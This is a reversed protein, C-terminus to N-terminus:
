GIGSLIDVERAASAVIGAAAAALSEQKNNPSSANERDGHGMSDCSDWIGDIDEDEMDGLEARIQACRKLKDNNLGNKAMNYARTYMEFANKMAPYSELKGALQDAPTSRLEALQQEVEDESIEQGSNSKFYELISPTKVKNMMEVMFSERSGDSQLYIASYDTLIERTAVALQKKQFQEFSVTLPPNANQFDEQLNSVTELAKEVHQPQPIRQEKAMEALKLVEQAFALMEDHQKQEAENEPRAQLLNEVATHASEHTIMHRLNMKSGNPLRFSPDLIEKSITIGGNTDCHMEAAYGFRQKSGASIKERPAVTITHAMGILTEASLHGRLLPEILLKKIAKAEAPSVEVGDGVIELKKLYKEADQVRENAQEITLGPIANTLAEAASKRIDEVIEPSALYTDIIDVISEIQKARDIVERKKRTNERGAEAVDPNIPEQQSEGEAVEEGEEARAESETPPVESSDVKDEELLLDEDDNPELELDPDSNADPSPQSPSPQREPNEIPQEPNM